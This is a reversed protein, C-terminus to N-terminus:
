RRATAGGAGQYARLKSLFSEVPAGELADPDYDVADASFSGLTTLGDSGAGILLVERGVAVLHLTRGPGLAMTEVVRLRYGAPSPALGTRMRAVWGIGVIMGVVLILSAVTRLLALAPSGGYAEVAPERYPAMAPEARASPAPGSSASEAVPAPAADAPPEALSMRVALLLAAASLVLVLRSFGTDYRTLSSSLHMAAGEPLRM